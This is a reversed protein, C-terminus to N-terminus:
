SCATGSIIRISRLPTSAPRMPPMSSVPCAPSATSTSRSSGTATFRFPADGHRHDPTDGFLFSFPYASSQREVHYVGTMTLGAEQKVAAFATAIVDETGIAYHVFCQKGQPIRNEWYGMHRELTDRFAHGAILQTFLSHSEDFVKIVDPIALRKFRAYSAPM